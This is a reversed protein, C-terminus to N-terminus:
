PAVRGPCAPDGEVGACSLVSEAFGSQVVPRTLNPYGGAPDCVFPLRFGAYEIAAQVPDSPFEERRFTRAMLVTGIYDAYVENDRDCSAPSGPLRLASAGEIARSACRHIEGFPFGAADPPQPLLEHCLDAMHGLEHALVSALATPRMHTMIPCIVISAGDIDAGVPPRDGLGCGESDEVRLGVDRLRLLLAERTKSGPMGEIVSRLTDRLRAFVPRIGDRLNVPDVDGERFLRATEPPYDRRLTIPNLQVTGDARTELVGAPASALYGCVERLRASCTPPAHSPFELILGSDGELAEAEPFPGSDAPMLCSQAEAIRPWALAFLLAVTHAIM